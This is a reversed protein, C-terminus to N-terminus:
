VKLRGLVTKILEPNDLMNETFYDLCSLFGEEQFLGRVKVTNRIIIKIRGFSDPILNGNYEM